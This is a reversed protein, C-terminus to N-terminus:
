AVLADLNVRNSARMWHVRFNVGGWMVPISSATCTSLDHRPSRMIRQHQLSYSYPLDADFGPSSSATLTLCGISKCSSQESSHIQQRCLLPRHLLSSARICQQIEIISFQSASFVSGFHTPYSAVLSHMSAFSQAIHIPILTHSNSHVWNGICCSSSGFKVPWPQNDSQILPNHIFYHKNSKALM